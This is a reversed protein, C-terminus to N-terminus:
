GAVPRLGRTGAGVRTADPPKTRGGGTCAIVPLPAGHAFLVAALGILGIGSIAYPVLTRWAGTQRPAVAILTQGDGLRRSVSALKAGNGTSLSSYASQPGIPAFDELSLALKSVDGAGLFARKERDVLYMAGGPPATKELISLVAARNAADPALSIPAAPAIADAAKMAAVTVRDAETKVGARYDKFANFALTGLCTGTLLLTLGTLRALNPVTSAARGDRERRFGIKM